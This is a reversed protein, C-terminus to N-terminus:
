LGVAILANCLEERSSLIPLVVLTSSTIQQTKDACPCWPELPQTGLFGKSIGLHEQGVGHCGLAPTGGDWKASLLQSCARPLVMQKWLSATPPCPTSGFGAGGPWPFSATSKCSCSAREVGWGLKQGMFAVQARLAPPPRPLFGKM